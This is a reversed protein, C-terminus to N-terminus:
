LWTRLRQSFIVQRPLYVLFLQISSGYDFQDTSQM